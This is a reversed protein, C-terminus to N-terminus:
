MFNWSGNNCHRYIQVNNDKEVSNTIKNRPIDYVVVDCLNKLTQMLGYVSSEIGGKICKRDIPYCGVIGVKM